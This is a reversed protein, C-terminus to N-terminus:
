RDGSDNEEHFSRRTLDSLKARGLRRDLEAQLDRLVPYLPCRLHRCRGKQLCASLYLPGDVAQFIDRVLIEYPRRALRLGGGKGRRSRMIGARVLQQAIKSIFAPSTRLLGALSSASLMGKERALIAAMQLAYENRKTILM